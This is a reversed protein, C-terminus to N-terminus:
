VAEPGRLAREVDNAAPESASAQSIAKGFLEERFGLYHYQAVEMSGSRPARLRSSFVGPLNLLPEPTNECTYAACIKGEQQAQRILPNYAEMLINEFYTLHKLDKM